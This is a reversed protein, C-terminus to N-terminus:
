THIDVVEPWDKLMHGPEIQLIEDVKRRHFNPHFRATSNEIKTRYGNPYDRVWSYHHMVIEDPSFIKRYGNLQLDRTPDTQTEEMNPWKNKAKYPNQLFPVVTGDLEKGRYNIKNYYAYCSVWSQDQRERRMTEAAAAFQIPDYYEDADQVLCYEADMKKWHFYEVQRQNAEKTAVDRYRRCARMDIVNVYEVNLRQRVEQVRLADAAPQKTVGDRAYQNEIIRVAVGEISLLSEVIKSLHETGDFCIISVGIM